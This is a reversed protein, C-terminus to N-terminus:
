LSIYKTQKRLLDDELVDFSIVFDPIQEAIALGDRATHM